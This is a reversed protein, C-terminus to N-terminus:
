CSIVKKSSEEYQCLHSDIAINKLKIKGDSYLLISGSTPVNRKLNLRNTVINKEALMPIGEEQVVLATTAECVKGDCIFELGTTPYNMNEKKLSERFFETASDVVDNAVKIRKSERIEEVLHFVIPCLLVFVFGVIILIGFLEFLTFGKKSM